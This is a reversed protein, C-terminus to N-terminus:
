FIVLSVAVYGFYTFSAVMDFEGFYKDLLNKKCAWRIVEQGVGASVM